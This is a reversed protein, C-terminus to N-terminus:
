GQGSHCRLPNEQAALGVIRGSQGRWVGRPSKAAVTNRGSNPVITGSLPGIAMIFLNDPGLPDTDPGTEDWLLKVAFGSAGVYQRAFEEDYEQTSIEDSSLDVRLIKGGYGKMPIGGVVASMLRVESDRDVHTDLGDLDRVDSEDVMVLVYPTLEGDQLIHEQLEGGYREGLVKILEKLTGEFDLNVKREGGIVSPLRM